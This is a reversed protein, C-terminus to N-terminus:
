FKLRLQKSNPYLQEIRYKLLIIWRQYNNKSIGSSILIKVRRILSLPFFFPFFPSLTFYRENWNLKKWQIQRHINIVQGKKKKKNRLIVPLFKIKSVRTVCFKHLEQEITFIDVMEVM